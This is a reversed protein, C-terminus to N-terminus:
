LMSVFKYQADGFDLIAYKKKFSYIFFLLLWWYYNNYEQCFPNKMLYHLSEEVNELIKM